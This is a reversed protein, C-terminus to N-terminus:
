NAHSNNKVHDEAQAEEFLQFGPRNEGDPAVPSFIVLWKHGNSLAICTSVAPGDYSVTLLIDM